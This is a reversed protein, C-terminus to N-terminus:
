FKVRWTIGLRGSSYSPLGLTIIELYLREMLYFIYKSTILGRSIILYSECRTLCILKINPKSIHIVSIYNIRNINKGRARKHELYGLGPMILLKDRAM